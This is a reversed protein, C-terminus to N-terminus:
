KKPATESVFRLAQEALRRWHGRGEATVMVWGGMPRGMGSPDFTGAGELRNAAELDAPSLKFSMAEGFLGAFAKGRVKLTPMGFLKSAVIEHGDTIEAAIADYDQQAAM